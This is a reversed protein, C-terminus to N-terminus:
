RSRRTGLNAGEEHDVKAQDDDGGLERLGLLSLALQHLFLPHAEHGIGASQGGEGFWAGAVVLQKLVQSVDDALPGFLDGMDAPEQSTTSTEVDSGRGRGHFGLATLSPPPFRGPLSGHRHMVHHVMMVVMVVVMVVKPIAAQPSSPADSTQFTSIHLSTRIGVSPGM